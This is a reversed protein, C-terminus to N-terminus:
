EKAEGKLSEVYDTDLLARYEGGLQYLGKAILGAFAMAGEPKLHTGDKMFWEDRTEEPTHLVLEESMATLDILAAGLQKAKRRAAAAWRDHRYVAKPDTFRRRTVPTIFVPIANKNRAANAFRELNDCFEHDPDTYRAPDNDKEDNHGFQVFLFDGQRIDDYIAAVRGEDMFSKTSRGNEAHNSIAVAGKQLYRDLMQGIGTQPYTLISNQKVTSDGAWFITKM